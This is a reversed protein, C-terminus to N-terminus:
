RVIEATLREFTLGYKDAIAQAYARGDAPKRIVKHTRVAPDEPKVMSVMSVTKENLSALEDLFTVCLCLADLESVRGLIERSLFLADSASTSNFVENLVFLSSSTAREFGAKLRNLEDQLKGALTTLDEEKEFHTFIQDCLFLRADRGPVPCGLRALYHLQGFTRALTTKGGNNPGSVVLIREPDHLTLDNCVVTTEQKRLQAALALDFTDLVQENKSTASMEPRSFALGTDRIPRIYDLYSLYFQLERDLRRVTEDLYGIHQQCFTDLRAFLEPYVKAVLDLVGAGAFSFMQDRFEPLYSTAAGQQFRAFTASVQESYDAEDDYPGVTIRSGRVLLSYRVSDLEEELAKTEAELTTFEGSAVYTALYARLGRLGRSSIAHEALGAALRSVVQCYLEAANLFYRERHYHNFGLDDEGMDRVRYTFKAVLQEGAFAALVEHVGVDELDAFVEQRYVVDDIKTLTALFMPKLDYEDKGDTVSNIVQDLNLDALLVPTPPANTASRADSRPFLISPPAAFPSMPGGSSVIDTLERLPM